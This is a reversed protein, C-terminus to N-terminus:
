RNADIEEPPTLHTRANTTRAGYSAVAETTSRLSYSMPTQLLSLVDAAVPKKVPVGGGACASFGEGINARRRDSRQSLGCRGLTNAVLVVLRIVLEELRQIRLRRRLRRWRWLDRDAPALPGCM